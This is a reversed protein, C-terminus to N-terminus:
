RNYTRRNDAKLSIYKDVDYEIFFANLNIETVEGSFDEKIRLLKGNENNEECGALLFLFFICLLVTKIRM